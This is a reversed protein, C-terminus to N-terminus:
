GNSDGKSQAAIAANLAIRWAESPLKGSKLARHWEGMCTGIAADSWDRDMAAEVPSSHTYLKTGFPLAALRVWDELSFEVGKSADTSLTTAVVEGVGPAPAFRKIAEIVAVQLHARRQPEEDGSFRCAVDLAVQDIDPSMAPQETLADAAERVMGALGSWGKEELFAALHGLGVLLGERGGAVPPMNLASM